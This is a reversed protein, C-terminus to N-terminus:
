TKMIMIGTQTYPLASGEVVLIEVWLQPKGRSVVVNAGCLLLAGAQILFSMVILASPRSGCNYSMWSYSDM